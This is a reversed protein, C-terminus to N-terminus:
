RVGGIEIGSATCAESIQSDWRESEENSLTECSWLVERAADICQELAAGSSEEWGGPHGVLEIRVGQSASGCAMAGFYSGLFGGSSYRVVGCGNRVQRLDDRIEEQYGRYFGRVFADSSGVPAHITSAVRILASELKGLAGCGQTQVTRLKLREFLIGANRQGLNWGDEYTGATGHSAFASPLSGFSVLATLASLSLALRWPERWLTSRQSSDSNM